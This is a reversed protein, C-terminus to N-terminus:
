ARPLPARLAAALEASGRRALRPRWVALAFAVLALLLNLGGLRDELGQLRAAEALDPLPQAVLASIRGVLPVLGFSGNALIVLGLAQKAGLWSRPFLGWRGRWALVAGSGMLLWMGPVILAAVLDAAIERRTRFAEADGLHHSAGLVISAGIGGLFLVVGALHAAKVARYWGKRQGEDQENM